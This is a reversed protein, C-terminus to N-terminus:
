GHFCALLLTTVYEGSSKDATAFSGGTLVGGDPQALAANAYGLDGYHFSELGHNGFSGDVSGDPRDRFVAYLGGAPNQKTKASAGVTLIGGNAQVAVDTVNFLRRPLFPASVGRKGFSRDLSGNPRYRVLYVRASHFPGGNAAVVIRGDRQVAFADIPCCTGNHIGLTVRGDGGGFGRDLRGNAYLRALFLRYSHYGAVLVKGSGLVEVDRLSTYAKYSHQSFLVRGSKGFSKDPSGDPRYAYVVGAPRETGRRPENRGGVVIIRGDSAVAAAHLVTGGPGFHRPGLAIGGAGFDPDLSGDVRYRALLATFTTPHHLGEQLFGAVVVKGDGQVTVAEAQAEQNFGSWPHPVPFPPTFGSQGFAPDPEGSPTLRVAGFYGPGVLGKLAGMTTGDPAAALDVIGVEKQSAEQPLAPTAVGGSGFSPDLWDAARADAAPFALTLLLALVLAM